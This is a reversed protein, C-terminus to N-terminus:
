CPKGSHGQRQRVDPWAYLHSQTNMSLSLRFWKMAEPYSREVGKGQFYNMGLRYHSQAMDTM